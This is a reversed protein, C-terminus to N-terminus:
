KSKKNEKNNDRNTDPTKSQIIKPKPKKPKNNNSNNNDNERQTRNNNNYSINSNHIGNESLGKQLKLHNIRKRIGEDSANRRLKIENRNYKCKIISNYENKRRPIETTRKVNTQKCNTGQKDNINNNNCVAISTNSIHKQPSGSGKCKRICFSEEKKIELFNQTPLLHTCGICNRNTNNSCQSKNSKDHINKENEISVKRIDKNAKNHKTRRNLVLTQPTEIERQKNLRSSSETHTHKLISPVVLQNNNQQNNINNNNNNQEQTLESLVKKLIDAGKRKINISKVEKFKQNFAMLGDKFTSKEKLCSAKSNNNNNSNHLSVNNSTIAKKNKLYNKKNGSNGSGGSSDGKNYNLYKKKDQFTNILQHNNNNMEYENQKTNCTTTKRKSHAIQTSANNSGVLKHIFNEYYKSNDEDDFLSSVHEYPAEKQTKTKIKVNHYRNVSEKSKHGHDNQLGFHKKSGFLTTKPYAGLNTFM